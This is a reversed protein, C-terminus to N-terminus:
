PRDDDSHAGLTRALKSTVSAPHAGSQRAAERIAALLAKRSEGDGPAAPGLEAEWERWSRTVNRRLDLATVHDDVFEVLLGGAADRLAYAVRENRIRALPLLASDGILDALAVRIGASPGDLSGESLPWATEQRGDGRLPGKIHWGADHGGERRRLATGARSLVLDATDFYRADLERRELADVMAVGAISMFDPLEHGADVDFTLEIEFTTSPKSM